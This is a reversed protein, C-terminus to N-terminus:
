QSSMTRPPIVLGPQPSDWFLRFYRQHQLSAIPLTVYNVIERYPLQEPYPVWKSMSGPEDSMQLQFQPLDGQWLVVVHNTEIHVKFAPPRFFIFTAILGATDVVDATTATSSFAAVRSISDNTVSHTEMTVQKGGEIYNPDSVRLELLLNRGKTPDYFFPSQLMWIGTGGFGRDCAAGSGAGMRGKFVLVEDDGVNESFVSSLGDPGRSISSFRMEVNTFGAAVILSGCAGRIDQFRTLFAGGQPLKSFQSAHFVQQFRVSQGLNFGFPIKSSGNGRVKELEAPVDIRIPHFEVPIPPDQAGVRFGCAVLVSVLIFQLFLKM